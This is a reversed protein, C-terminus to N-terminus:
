LLHGVVTERGQCLGMITEVVQKNGMIRQKFDAWVDTTWSYWALFRARNLNLKQQM